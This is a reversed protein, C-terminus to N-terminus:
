VNRCVVDGLTVVAPARNFLGVTTLTFLSAAAWGPPQRREDGLRSGCGSRDGEDGRAQRPCPLLTHTSGLEGRDGSVANRFRWPVKANGVRSRDSPRGFNPWAAGDTSTRHKEGSRFCSSAEDGRIREGLNDCGTEQM